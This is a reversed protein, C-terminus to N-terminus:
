IILLVWIPLTSAVVTSLWDIIDFGQKCKGIGVCVPTGSGDGIERGTIYVAACIIGIIAGLKPSGFWLGILTAPIGFIFLGQLAHSLTTKDIKASIWFFSDTGPIRWIPKPEIIYNPKNM